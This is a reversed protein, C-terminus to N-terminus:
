IKRVVNPQIIDVVQNVILERHRWPHGENHGAALPIATQRRLDALLRADDQYVPEESWAM